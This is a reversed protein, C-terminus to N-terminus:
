LSSVVRVIAHRDAPVSRVAVRGTGLNRLENPHVVYQEVRRISGKESFATAYDIQYTVDTSRRTGFQAALADADQAEVRHAVLLGAGLVAKQIALNEPIYQTSVVTPMQAQRAQLLLDTLQEAERLAAFEDLVILVPVIDEGCLMTDLRRACVQKLDQVIVRAMLEVDESAATARLAIYTV